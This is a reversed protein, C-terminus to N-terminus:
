ATWCQSVLMVFALADADWQWKEYDAREGWPKDQDGDLRFLALVHLVEAATALPLLVGLFTKCTRVNRIFSDIHVPFDRERDLLGLDVSTLTESESSSDSVM